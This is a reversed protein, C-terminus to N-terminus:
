SKKNNKRNVKNIPLSVYFITGKKEDSEFWIRGGSQKVIAKAIYLGLGTGETDKTRINDARFMKTFIKGQQGEPIGYGNDKIKILVNGSEKVLTVEIKGKPPTYKLANSILNQMVIRIHEPDAKIKPLDNEFNEAVSIEKNRILPNLEGLVSGIIEKLDIIKPDVLLTGMDIRSTNLIDDVLDIMRRNGIYIESLYERQKENLGGVEQNLLMETFWSVSTLPTRLQHSALSVFETKARDVERAHAIDREAEALKDLSRFTIFILYAFITAVVILHILSEYSSNYLGIRQLDMVVVELFLLFLLILFLRRSVHGSLEKGCFVRIFGAEPRLFLIGAFIAVFSVATHAAMGKYTSITYLASINYVFGLLSVLSIFGTLIIISQGITIARKTNRSFFLLSLGVAIFNLASQPSMRVVKEGMKQAFFTKDIKLDLGILYEILTLLGVLFVIFSLFFFLPQIRRAAKGNLSFFLLAAGVLIFSFATNPAIVPFNLYIRKLIEINFQWGILAALGTLFVFFSLIKSTSKLKNAIKIDTQTNM